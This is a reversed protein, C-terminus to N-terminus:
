TRESRQDWLQAEVLPTTCPPGDSSWIRPAGSAAVLVIEASRTGYPGAHVCAAWTPPPRPGAPAGAPVDHDALVAALFPVLAEGRHRPADAVARAVHDVKPSPAGLPQNELVHVGPGLRRTALEAGTLDIYHLADRDGVLLWAPNYDGPRVDFAAVADDARTHQALRLPLEGRSRLGPQRAAGPRNTLAAVVGHRNTALWTGGALLDRGGVIRPGDAQLVELAVAPRAHLEDRNAALVLPYDPHVHALAIALCM